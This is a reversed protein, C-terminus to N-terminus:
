SLSVRAAISRLAEKLSRPAMMARLCRGRFFYFANSFGMAGGMFPFFGASPFGARIDGFKVSGGCFLIGVGM